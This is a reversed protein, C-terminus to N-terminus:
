TKGEHKKWLRMSEPVCSVVKSERLGTKSKLKRAVFWGPQHNDSRRVTEVIFVDLDHGVPHIKVGKRLWPPRGLPNADMNGPQLARCVSEVIEVESDWLHDAIGRRDGDFDDFDAQIDAHKKLAVQVRRDSLVKDADPKPNDTQGILIRDFRIEFGCIAFLRGMDRVTLDCDGSLLRNLHRTAWRKRPSDCFKMAVTGKDLGASEIAQQMTAQALALSLEEFGGLDEVRSKNAGSTTRSSM